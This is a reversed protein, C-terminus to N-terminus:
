LFNDIKMAAGLVSDMADSKGSAKWKEGPKRLLDRRRPALSWAFFDWGTGDADTAFLSADIWDFRGATPVDDTARWQPQEVRM